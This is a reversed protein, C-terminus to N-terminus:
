LGRDFQFLTRRPTEAYFPNTKPTHLSLAAKRAKLARLVENEPWYLQLLYVSSKCFERREIESDLDHLVDHIRLADGRGSVIMRALSESM